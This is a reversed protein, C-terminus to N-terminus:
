RTALSIDRINPSGVIIQAHGQTSELALDIGMKAKHPQWPCFLGKFHLATEIVVLATLAPEIIGLMWHTRTRFHIHTKDVRNREAEAVNLFGRAPFYKGCKEITIQSLGDITFIRHRDVMM